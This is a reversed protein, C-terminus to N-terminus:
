LLFVLCVFCSHQLFYILTLLILFGSNLIKLLLTEFKHVLCAKPINFFYIKNLTGCVERTFVKLNVVFKDLVLNITLYQIGTCYFLVDADIQSGDQFSVKSGDVSM